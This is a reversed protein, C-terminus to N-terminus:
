PLTLVTDEGPLPHLRVTAKACFPQHGCEIDVSNILEIVAYVMGMVYSKVITRIYMQGLFYLTLKQM